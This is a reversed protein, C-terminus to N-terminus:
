ISKEDHCLYELGFYDVCLINRRKIKVVIIELETVEFSQRKLRPKDIRVKVGTM